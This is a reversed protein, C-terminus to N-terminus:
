DLSERYIQFGRAQYNKLANPHDLSCTHVWVRAAGMEWAKEVAATLFGGGLGKGLFQPLLGFYAIEVDGDQDDLEFYGAPTGRLYLMWTQIKEREAWKRWEEESWNLRDTWQWLKGVELYFFRNLDPLPIEQKVLQTEPPLARACLEEPHLMELHWITGAESNLVNMRYRVQIHM